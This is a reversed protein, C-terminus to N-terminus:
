RKGGYKKQLSYLFKSGRDRTDQKGTGGMAQGLGRVTRSNIVFEGDSLMAPIDDSTETGPGAIKGNKRPFGGQRLGLTKLGNVQGGMAKGMLGPGYQSFPVVNVGGMPADGINTFGPVTGYVDEINSGKDEEEKSALLGTLGAITGATTLPNAKAFNMVSGLVGPKKVAGKMIADKLLLKNGGSAANLVSSPVATGTAATKGFLGALGQGGQLGGFRGLAGGALGSLAAFKLAEQPSKGAVLSGLGGGLASGLMPGGYLFGLGAGIIPAAKKAAKFIKKLM